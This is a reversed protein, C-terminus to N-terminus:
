RGGPALRLRENALIILIALESWGISSVIVLSVPQVQMM